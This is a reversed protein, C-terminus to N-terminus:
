PQEKTMLADVALRTREAEKQKDQVLKRAVDFVYNKMDDLAGEATKNTTSYPYHPADKTAFGALFHGSPQRVVLVGQPFHVVNAVKCLELMQDINM